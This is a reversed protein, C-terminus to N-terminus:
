ENLLGNMMRLLVISSVTNKYKELFHRDQLINDNYGLFSPCNKQVSLRIMRIEGNNPNDKVAQEINRKGKNFTNLKSLAGHTHKAWITQYGGLYALYVNSETNKSLLAIMTECVNKDTAAKAYQKRVYELDPENAFIGNSISLWLVICLAAKM